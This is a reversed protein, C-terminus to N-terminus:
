RLFGRVTKDSELYKVQGYEDALAVYHRATEIIRAVEDDNLTKQVKAPVGMVLSREPVTMGPPVVSGAAVLSHKGITAGDLVVAGMGILCEDAVTCGHLVVRHGITVRSGIHLPFRATTVHLTSHDQINTEEGIRIMHVDGRVVTYFWVSSHEGIVVDGIIWASPAIYVSMAVQPYIGRYGLIGEM